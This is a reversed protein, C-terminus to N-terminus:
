CVPPNDATSYPCSTESENVGVAEVEEKAEKDDDSEDPLLKEQVVRNVLSKRKEVASEAAKDFDMDGKDIFYQLTKMVRHHVADLKICHICKLRELNFHM